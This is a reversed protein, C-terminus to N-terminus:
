RGRLRRPTCTSWRGTSSSSGLPPFRRARESRLSATRRRPAAPHDADTLDSRRSGYEYERMCGSVLRKMYHGLFKPHSMVRHQKKLARLEGLFEQARVNELVADAHSPSSQESDKEGTFHIPRCSGAHQPWPLTGCAQPAWSPFGLGRVRLSPAVLRRLMVRCAVINYSFRKRPSNVFPVPEVSQDSREM